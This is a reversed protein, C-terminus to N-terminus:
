RGWLKDLSYPSGSMGWVDGGIYRHHERVESLLTMEQDSLEIEAAQLNQWLRDKNTSKPIASVGRNVHWALLIQAPSKGHAEAIERVAELEFLNPESDKRSGRDRSGLPSYATLLISESQCFKVLEKQPLYPHLEIQNVEPRIRCGRLLSEISSQNFNSVGIHRCKGEDVLKEMAQWTSAIPAEDPSLFDEPKEPFDLGIEPRLAVPWHMLYLDLYDLQLDKLTRECSPAVDEPLHASNWLKSTIFLEERQVVGAKFAQRLAMGIEKENKYIAACDIHRYGLELAELLAEGVEGPKAKWTGLGIVPLADGNKFSLSKM